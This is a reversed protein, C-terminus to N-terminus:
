YVYYLLAHGRRNVFLFQSRCAACRAHRPGVTVELSQLVLSGGCSFRVIVAYGSRSLPESGDVVENVPNPVQRLQPWWARDSGRLDFSRSSSSYRTASQLAATRAAGTVPQLGAPNPCAALAGGRSRVPPPYISRPFDTATAVTVGATATLLLALAM